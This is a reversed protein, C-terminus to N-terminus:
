IESTQVVQQHSHLPFFQDPYLGRRIRGAQLFPQLLRGSIIDEEHRYPTQLADQGIHLPGAVANVHFGQVLPDGDQGM